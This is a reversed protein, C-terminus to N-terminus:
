AELIDKLFEAQERDAMADRISEEPLRLEITTKMVRSKTREELKLDKIAINSTFITILGKNLRTNILRFIEQDQFEGSKQAGLDDLVLLECEKFVKTPDMAGPEKKYYEGILNIYDPATIFKMQIGYRLMVSKAVCCALFTKGSGATRSWLYIGKNKGQWKRFNDFFDYIIKKLQLQEREYARFNFKYLDVLKYMDPVNTLDEEKNIGFCRTCKRAYDNALDEGGYVNGIAFPAPKYLEWGTGKCVPCKNSRTATSVEIHPIKILGTNLM